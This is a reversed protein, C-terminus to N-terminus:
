FTGEFGRRSRHRRGERMAWAAAAEPSELRPLDLEAPPDGLLAVPLDMKRALAIESLTGWGGGVAVVAEGGRVVLANRAEGLGTPVPVRVFPNAATSDTGPLIGVTIGGAEWCGRSAAEMVGGLGGTIVVAGAAGLARGLAEAIVSEGPSAVGAGVVSVRVPVPPEDV